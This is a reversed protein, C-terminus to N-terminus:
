TRSLAQIPNLHSARWAPLLSAVLGLVIVVLTSMLMDESALTPYLTTGMGALEMGEAVMSIDIGSEMPLITIVALINGIVLGLTLLMLSELLVQYMIWQPRMGLAMMLGIERIREFVAMVLTNVLGFSLALFIVIMIVINMNGQISSCARWIAM